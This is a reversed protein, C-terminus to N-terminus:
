NDRCSQLITRPNDCRNSSPSKRNFTAVIRSLRANPVRPLRFLFSDGRNSLLSFVRSRNDIAAFARSFVRKIRSRQLRKMRGCRKHIGFRILAFLGSSSQHHLNRYLPCSTICSIYINAPALEGNKDMRMRSELQSLYPVAVSKGLASFWKRANFPFAGISSNKGKGRQTRTERKQKRSDIPYKLSFPEEMEDIELSKIV